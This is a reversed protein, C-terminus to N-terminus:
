LLVTFFIVCERALAAYEASSMVIGASVPEVGPSPRMVIPNAAMGSVREPGCGPPSSTHVANRSKSCGM